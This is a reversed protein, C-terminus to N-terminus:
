HSTGNTRRVAEAKVRAITSILAQMRKSGDCCAVLNAVIGRHIRAFRQPPCSSPHTATLYVHALRLRWVDDICRSNTAHFNIKSNFLRDSHLLMRFVAPWHQLGPHVAQSVHLGTRADAAAHLSELVSRKGLSYLARYLFPVCLVSHCM